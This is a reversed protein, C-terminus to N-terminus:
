AKAGKAGPVGKRPRMSEPFDPRSGAEPPLTSQPQKMSVGEPEDGSQSRLHALKAILDEPSDIPFFEAPIQRGEAVKRDKGEYKVNAKEGGLAKALDDFSNLPYQAKKSIDNAVRVIDDLKFKGPM